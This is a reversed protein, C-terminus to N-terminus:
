ERLKMIAIMALIPMPVASAILSNYPSQTNLYGGVYSAVVSAVLSLTQPISVWLGRKSEPAITGVYSSILTGIVMSAGLPFALLMVAYQNRILLLPIMALAYLVLCLSITTSKRRKDGLRGAGIGIFTIGAFNISGFLGIYLENLGIPKGLFTPVFPRAIMVFFSTATFFASWVLLRRWRRREEASPEPRIPSDYKPPHQSRISLFIVTAVACFVTAVRLVWRMGIITALFGGIGPAFIYSFSYSAWVFSLVSAMNRKDKLSTIVYANVAPVGIMSIGWCIAGPILQWWNQAFSYLFPAFIWPTWALILIKKRDFRDALMGGPIPALASAGYLASFVLGLQVPNARLQTNIYVPFVWFYLGEGFAGIVNSLCILWIDRSFARFPLGLSLVRFYGASRSMRDGGSM